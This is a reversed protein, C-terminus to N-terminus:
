RGLERELFLLGLWPTPDHPVLATADLCADRATDARTKGTVARYVTACALLVAADTSEPEALSWDRTWAAATAEQALGMIRHGRRDWDDGTAALLARAETWRGQALATRATVLEADDLAPDGFHASHAGKKRPRGLPPPPPSM